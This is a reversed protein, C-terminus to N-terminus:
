CSDGARSVLYSIELTMSNISALIALFMVNSHMAARTPKLGRCKLRKNRADVPTPGFSINVFMRKSLAARSKRSLRFFTM